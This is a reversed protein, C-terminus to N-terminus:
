SLFDKVMAIFDDRRDHHVWHGAREFLEVRADRFHAARGDAAPNSAWSEAGYILLVPCSIAAWLATKLEATIDGPSDGGVTPDHKLRLSGDPNPRAAHTVLHEVMDPELREDTERMRAVLAARDPYDRPRRATVLARRDFFRRWREFPDEAARRAAVAPSDGLGEINVLRTVRDPYLGAFRTAINGGLSHGIIPCPPLDLARVIGAFDEVFDMLAYSGDNTWDSDGHGRLDPAIVRHSDTFAAAVRDWSRAHDRGGHQLILPPASPDGWEVINLRLRSITLTTTRPEAM